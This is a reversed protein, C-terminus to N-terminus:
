SSIVTRAHLLIGYRFSSGVKPLTGLKQIWPCPMPKGLRDWPNGWYQLVAPLLGEGKEPPVCESLFLIANTTFALIDKGTICEPM